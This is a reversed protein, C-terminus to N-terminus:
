SQDGTEEQHGPHLLSGRSGVAGMTWAKAQSRLDKKIHYRAVWNEGSVSRGSGSPVRLKLQAARSANGEPTTVEVHLIRQERGWWNGWGNKM